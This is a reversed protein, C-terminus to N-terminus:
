NQEETIFFGGYDGNLLKLLADKTNEDNKMQSHNSGTLERVYNADPYNSASEALVVGDSPKDVLVTIIGTYEFCDEEPSSSCAGSYDYTIGENDICECRQETIEEFSLAGTILKFRDNANVWWSYGSLYADRIEYAEELSVDDSYPSSNLPNWWWFWGDNEDLLNRWIVYETYFKDLNDNLVEVMMEDDNAQFPLEDNPDNVFSSLARFAVPEDEVGFFAVKAVDSPAANLEQLPAAGVHYDNSIQAPETVIPLLTTTFFGSVNEFYGVLDEANFILDLLFNSEVVKTIPGEMNAVVGDDVLDAIMGHNNLIMAGQHASAFTVIGNFQRQSEITREYQDCARAALGGQSHGIIFNNMPNIDPNSHSYFTNHLEIGAANLSYQDYSEKMVMAKRAPFGTAGGQIATQVQTWAGANSGLGHLTFIMRNFPENPPPPTDENDGPLDLVPYKVIPSVDVSIPPADTLCDKAPRQADLNVAFLLCFM